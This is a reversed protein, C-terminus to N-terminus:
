PKERPAALRHITNYVAGALPKGDAARIDYGIRMQMTPGLGKVALFVSRGGKELAASTVALLDHGPRNPDRVSWHKSGYDASWRYNWQEVKYRSREAAQKPDLARAFRLRIGDAYVDLGTPVALPRGTYRVRQLSGDRRAATQWGNLGAVYLHGDRPHFRGRLSGSLFFVGLDVAGAQTITGVTQPLVAYLKCRGYSLHLMQGKPWGFRGHPVWAQGGASNDAEKPLWLLPGDYTAPPKARHHARMDGYFGGERYVDIRTAPMWNGEQDAGTVVDAPSVSLGVPHRFGTAFVSVTRGDNTARMLCGGHPLHTDGTKFFYFNGKSDTELCSDYSHEGAGTHWDNTLNEYFDAEADSDLDHLRTLQGRELVVVKGDVVKLGLPQYLGTAFRKWEVKQLKDDFTVLWVDGHATCLAIRGDALFDLGTCFFLASSPNDYPVTLTDLVYPADDRAVEGRTVLPRPYRSPGAKTWKSLDPAAPLKAVAARVGDIDKTPGQWYFFRFRRVKDGPPIKMWLRDSQLMSEMDDMGTAVAVASRKKDALLRTVSLPNRGPVGGLEKPGGVPDAFLVSVASKSPGVEITRVLVEQGAVTEIWPSEKVEAGGVTYALVVRKGHLHLGKYRGWARPLPLTEPHKSQREGKPGAWGPGSPTTFLLRGAPRPTNLLGFRADSHHLFGGTWGAAFRLRGRDFLVAGQGKDGIRIATAKYVPVPKGAHRYRMTANFTPGTDMKRLRADVWDVDTAREWAEGGTAPPPTWAPDALIGESDDFRWLGITDADLPLPGKPVGNIKRIVRSLRVDDILGDCGIRGGADIAQGVCLPGPAPKGGPLPTIAAEHVKRGDAYLAVRKGDFTAALHHWRGDCIDTKSAVEAPRYGPLYASFAGSGAYSYVEWHRSSSKPDCSVLVNFGRKSRLKAWCEVTLPPTRYREDGNFALPTAAADLAKGFRGEVLKVTPKKERKEAKAIPAQSRGAAWVCGRRILMAPGDGRISKEAHGLLTQFVRAKKYQYAWALPEEKKTDKSLATVLPTVPLDGAQRYYLEDTTDFDEMGQTIPHKVPAIKVRFPGFSDHGSKASHDWVRRVIKRYEPWDSQKAGPLSFHFAGNAFHIVALGRGADLYRLLNAKAKDSLGPKQWNVYNQVILDYALLDARALHEPDALVRVSFRADKQLVDKLAKSTARWDHFPGDHGTLVLARIPKGAPGASLVVKRQRQAAPTHSAPILLLIALAAKSSQKM